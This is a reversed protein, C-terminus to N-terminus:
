RNQTLARPDGAYRVYNVLVRVQSTAGITGKIGLTTADSVALYQMRMEAGVQLGFDKTWALPYVGLDRQRASAVLAGAGATEVGTEMGWDTYIRHRWYSKMRADVILNKDYMFTFPDPWDADGNTRGAAPLDAVRRCIFILNRMLGNFNTLKRDFAGSSIDETSVQWYQTTQPAPPNEAVPMGSMDTPSPDQWGELVYRLRVTGANTPATDYVTATAALTVDIRFQASGSTNPLVGLADRHVIEVPVFLPFSFSGGAGVAGATTSYFSSSKPDSGFLYGGYKNVVYLDYGTLPGTLPQSGVDQFYITDLANWPADDAFAVVAANAATTCEVILWLAGLFGQPSVAYSDFKQTGTTFTLSDDYKSEDTQRSGVVFPRPAVQAKDGKGNAKGAAEPPRTAVATGAM